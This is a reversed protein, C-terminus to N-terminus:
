QKWRVNREDVFQYYRSLVIQGKHDLLEIPVPGFPAAIRIINLADQDLKINGSSRTLELKAISGDGNLVVKFQMLGFLPRGNEDRPFNQQGIREVKQRIQQEWIGFIARVKESGEQSRTAGDEQQRTEFTPKEPRYALDLTKPKGQKASGNGLDLGVIEVEKIESPQTLVKPASAKTTKKPAPKARFEPKKESPAQTMVKAEPEPEPEPAKPPQKKQITMELVNSSLAKLTPKESAPILLFLMHLLIALILAQVLWKDQSSAINGLDNHPM